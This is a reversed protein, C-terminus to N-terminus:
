IQESIKGFRRERNNYWEIAGELEAPSFDPWYINTFYLESYALQWLMFNSIRSEGSTRIVLEPNPIGDTLLYQSLIEETVPTEPNEAIIRNVAQVIDYQGSYDLCISFNLGTNQRTKDEAALVSALLESNIRSRDGIFKIQANKSHLEDLEKNLRKLILRMLFSVEDQPRNWNERGFAFVTLYKVGLDNCHTVIKKLANVGKVHGAVRPLFRKKAWRGNGDMIIAIHQPIQKM